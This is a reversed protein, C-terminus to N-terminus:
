TEVPSTPDVHEYGGADAWLSQQNLADEDVASDCDNDAGDCLEAAVPHVLGEADDVGDQDADSTVVSGSDVGRKGGDDCALAQFSPLLVSVLSLTRNQFM